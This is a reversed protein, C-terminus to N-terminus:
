NNEFLFDLDPMTNRRIPVVLNYKWPATTRKMVVEDHQARQKKRGPEGWAQMNKINGNHSRKNGPVVKAKGDYVSLSGGLKSPEFLSVPTFLTKKNSKKNSKTMWDAISNRAVVLSYLPPPADRQPDKTYRM